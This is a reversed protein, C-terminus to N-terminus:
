LSLIQISNSPYSVLRRRSSHLSSLIPFTSPMMCFHDSSVISVSAQCAEDIIIVDFEQEPFDDRACAEIFTRSGAGSLTCCVVHSRSLIKQREVFSNVAGRKRKNSPYTKEETESRAGFGKVERGSSIENVIVDLNVARLLNMREDSSFNNFKKKKGRGDHRDEGPLV